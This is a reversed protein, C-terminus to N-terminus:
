SKPSFNSRQTIFVVTGANYFHLNILCAGLPYVFIGLQQYGLSPSLSNLAQAVESPIPQESILHLNKNSIYNLELSVNYDLPLDFLALKIEKFSMFEWHIADKSLMLLHSPVNQISARHISARKISNRSFLKRNLARQNKLCVVLFFFLEQLLLSRLFAIPRM